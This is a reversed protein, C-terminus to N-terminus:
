NLFLLSFFSHKISHANFMRLLDCSPFFFHGSRPCEGFVQNEKKDKKDKVVPLIPQYPVTKTTQESTKKNDTNTTFLLLTNTTFLLLANQIDPYSHSSSSCSCKATLVFIILCTIHDLVTIATVDSYVM